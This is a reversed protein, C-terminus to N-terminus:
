SLERDEFLAVAVALIAVVYAVTYGAAKGFYNWHFTNRGTEVADAIWFLQWNPTM